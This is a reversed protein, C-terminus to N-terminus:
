STSTARPAPATSSPEAGSGGGQQLRRREHAVPNEKAIAAQIQRAFQDTGGGAGGAAIFEVPKTPAWQAMAPAALALTALATTAFLKM